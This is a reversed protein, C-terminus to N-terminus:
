PCKKSWSPTDLFFLLSIVLGVFIFELAFSLNSTDGTARPIAISLVCILVGVGALFLGWANVSSRADLKQAAGLAGLISFALIGLVELGSLLILSGANEYYNGPNAYYSQITILLAWFFLAGILM